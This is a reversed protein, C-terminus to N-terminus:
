KKILHGIEADFSLFQILLSDFLRKEADTKFVKKPIIIAEFSNYFLFYYNNNEQKKLFAEWKFKRATLADELLIGTESIVVTTSLFIASNEPNDSIKKAQSTITSRIGTISLVSTFLILSIVVFAFLSSRDFLGTYYFVGTFIIITGLQKLYYLSRKAHKGPADWAVFIYYNTYDEKTLAYHLTLM